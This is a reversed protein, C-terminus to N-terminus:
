PHTQLEGVVCNGWLTVGECHLQEVNGSGWLAVGGCDLEGGVVVGWQAVWEMVDSGRQERWVQSCGM